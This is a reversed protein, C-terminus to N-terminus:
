GEPNSELIVNISFDDRIGRSLILWFRMWLLSRRPSREQKMTGMTLKKLGHYRINAKDRTGLM